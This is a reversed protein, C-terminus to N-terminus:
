QKNAVQVIHTKDKDTQMVASIFNPALPYYDSANVTLEGRGGFGFSSARHSAGPDDLSGGSNRSQHPITSNM